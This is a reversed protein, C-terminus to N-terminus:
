PLWSFWPIAKLTLMGGTQPLNVLSGDGADDGGARPTGAGETFEVYTHTNDWTYPTTASSVYEGNSSTRWQYGNPYNLTPAVTFLVDASNRSSTDSFKAITGGSIKISTKKDDHAGFASSGKSLQSPEVTATVTGGTITIDASPVADVANKGGGIASARQSGTADVTGGSITISVHGGYTGGGIGAGGSPSGTATVEGGSITIEIGNGRYGSGIRVDGGNATVKGGTILIKGGTSDEGGGIAAAKSYTEATATVDGGHIAILDLPNQDWGIGFSSSDKGATITGGYITVSGGAPANYAGGIGASNVGGYANITGSYITM